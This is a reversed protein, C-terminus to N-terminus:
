RSRACAWCGDSSGTPRLGQISPRTTRRGLRLRIGAPRRWQRRRGPPKWTAADKCWLAEGAADYQDAVLRNQRVLAWREGFRVQRTLGAHLIQPQPRRLKVGLLLDVEDATVRHRRDIPLPRAKPQGGAEFNGPIMEDERSTCSAPRKGHGSGLEIAHQRQAGEGVGIHQSLAHVLRALDNDDAGAEDAQIAATLDSTAGIDANSIM